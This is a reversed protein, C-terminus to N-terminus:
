HSRFPLPREKRIGRQWKQPDTIGLGGNDAIDQFINVISQGKQMAQPKDSARPFQCIIKYLLEIYQEDLQEIEIKLQKRAIM